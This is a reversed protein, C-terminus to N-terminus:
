RYYYIKIKKHDTIDHQVLLCETRDLMLKIASVSIVHTEGSNNKLSIEVDEIRGYKQVARAIRERDHVSNWLDFEDARRGIVQDRDLGLTKLFSNNVDIFRGEKLTAISMPIPVANFAMSFKEESSRLNEESLRRRTIEIWSSIIRKVKGPMEIVRSSIFVWFEEGNKKRFRREPIFGPSNIEPIVRLTYEEICEEPWWPFPPHPRHSRRIGPLM